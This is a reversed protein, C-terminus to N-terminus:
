GAEPELAEPFLEPQGEVPKKVRKPPAGYENKMYEIAANKDWGSFDQEGVKVELSDLLERELSDDGPYYGLDGSEESTAAMEVADALKLLASIKGDWMGGNEWVIALREHKDSADKVADELAKSMEGRMGSESAYLYATGLADMVATEIGLDSDLYELFDSVDGEQDPEWEFEAAGGQEEVFDKLEDPYDQELSLGINHIVNPPMQGFLELREKKDASYDLTIDEGGREASIIWKATRDGNQEVFDGLNDWEGIVFGKRAADYQSPDLALLATTKKITFDDFQVSRDRREPNIGQKALYRMLTMLAPKEKELEAREAEPLDAMAFNHSPEYGGGKIGKIRPDKLLTVIYPHYRAAPKENGRGKMEGLLGTARDFIFTLNPEWYTKAGKKRPERLSLIQDGTVEGVNGCHGMAKAEEPCYGRGLAWWAWGNGFKVFVEDGEHPELLRENEKTEAKYAEELNHLEVLLENPTEYGFQKSQIANDQIGMFHQLQSKIQPLDIMLDHETYTKGAKAGLAKLEKETTGPPIGTDRPPNIGGYTELDHILHLRVWRLYWTIRDQKRLKDKAWAIERDVNAKISPVKALLAKFMQHYDVALVLLRSKARM